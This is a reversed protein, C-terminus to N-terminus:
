NRNVNKNLDRVMNGELAVPKTLIFKSQVKSWTVKGVLKNIYMQNLDIVMNGEWAVPQYM